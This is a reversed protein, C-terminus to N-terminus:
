SSDPKSSLIEDRDPSLSLLRWRCRTYREQKSIPDPLRREGVERRRMTTRRLEQHKHRKSGAIATSQMARTAGGKGKAGRTTTTTPITTSMVQAGNATTGGTWWLKYRYNSKIQDSRMQNEPDTRAKDAERIHPEMWQMALTVYNLEVGICESEIVREVV